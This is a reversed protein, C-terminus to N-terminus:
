WLVTLGAFRMVHLSHTKAMDALWDDARSLDIAANLRQRRANDNLLVVKRGYYPGLAAIIDSLSTDAFMLSGRTWATELKADVLLARGFRQPSFTLSQGATLLSNQGNSAVEAAGEAIVVRAGDGQLKVDFVTGVDRVEGTGAHVTFPRNPDHRVSFLAEGRTLEIERKGNSYNINLASEGGLMVRSGDSLVVTKLQGISTVADYRWNAYYRQGVGFSMLLVAAIAVRHAAKRRFATSVAKRRRDDEVLAADLHVWLTRARALAEAHVSSEDRWKRFNDYDEPTAEGSTLRVVWKLAKDDVNGAEARANEYVLHVM